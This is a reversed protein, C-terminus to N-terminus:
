ISIVVKGRGHGAGLERLADPVDSLPYTAGVVPTVKGAEVLDRLFVLDEGKPRALLNTIKQKVFPSTALGRLVRGM